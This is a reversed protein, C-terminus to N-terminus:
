SSSSYRGFGGNAKSNRRRKSLHYFASVTNELVGIREKELISNEIVGVIVQFGGDELLFPEVHQLSLLLMCWQCPM